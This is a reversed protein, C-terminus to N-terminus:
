IYDCFFDVYVTTHLSKRENKEKRIIEQIYKKINSKVKCFEEITAAKFFAIFGNKILFFFFFFLGRFFNCVTYISKKGQSYKM